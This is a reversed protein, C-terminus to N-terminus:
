YSVEVKTKFVKEDNLHTVIYDALDARSINSQNTLSKNIAIRYKGTHKDHTLRPARIVSWDLDSKSLVTEMLLMDNYVYRFLRQLIYKVVFKIIFSGNPSIVVAGASICVIRKVGVKEMAAAINSVGQSYVTTPNKRGSGLCSVVADKGTLADEFTTPKLVDGRIITLNKDALTFATPNRIIVTVQYGAELAQEVVFKGTNGTAGFVIIKKITTKDPESLKTTM